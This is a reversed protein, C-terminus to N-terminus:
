KSLYELLVAWVAKEAEAILVRRAEVTKGAFCWHNDDSTCKLDPFITCTVPNQIRPQRTQCFSREQSCDSSIHEWNCQAGIEQEVFKIACGVVFDTDLNRGKGDSCFTKQALEQLGRFLTSAPTPSERQGAQGIYLSVREGDMEYFWEYVGAAPQQPINPNVLYPM